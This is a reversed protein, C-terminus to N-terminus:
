GKGHRHHLSLRPDLYAVDLDNVAYSEWQGDGHRLEVSLSSKSAVVEYDSQQLRPNDAVADALSPM